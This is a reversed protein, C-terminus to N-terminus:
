IKSLKRMSKDMYSFSPDTFTSTRKTSFIKKTITPMKNAKKKMKLAVKTLNMLNTGISNETLSKLSLMM